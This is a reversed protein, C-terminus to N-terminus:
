RIEAPREAARPGPSGPLRHHNLTAPHAAADATFRTVKGAAGRRTAGGPPGRGAAAAGGGQGAVGLGKVGTTGAGRRRGNMKWGQGMRGGEGVTMAGSYGEGGDRGQSGVGPQRERGGVREGAARGEM